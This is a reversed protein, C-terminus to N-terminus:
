NSLSIKLKNLEHKRQTSLEDRRKLQDNILKLKVNQIWVNISEIEHQFKHKKKIVKDIKNDLQDRELKLNTVKSKLDDIDQHFEREGISFFRLENEYKRKMEYHSDDIEIQQLSVIELEKSLNTVNLDIQIISSRLNELKKYNRSEDNQNLRSNLNEIESKLQTSKKRWDTKLKKLKIKEREISDQTTMISNQMTTIPSQIVGESVLRDQFVTSVTNTSLHILEGNITIKIFEIDYQFLPSLGNVFVLEKNKIRCSSVHSWIIGNVKILLQELSISHLEFGLTTEGIYWIFCQSSAILMKKDNLYYGPTILANHSFYDGSYYDLELFMTRIAILITWIPQQYRQFYYRNLKNNNSFSSTGTSASSLPPISAAQSSTATTSQPTTITSGNRSKPPKLNIKNPRNTVNSINSNLNYDISERSSWISSCFNQFNQSVIFLPDTLNSVFSQDQLQLQSQQQQNNLSSRPLKSNSISDKVKIIPQSKTQCYQQNSLDDDNNQQNSGFFSDTLHYIKSFVATKRLIPNMNHMITYLSLTAHIFQLSLELNLLISSDYHINKFSLYYMLRKSVSSSNKFSKFHSNDMSQFSLSLDLGSDSRILHFYDILLQSSYEFLMIACCTSIADLLFRRRTSTLSAAMLAKSFIMIYPIASPLLFLLGSMCLADTTLFLIFSYLSLSGGRSTKPSVLKLEAGGTTTSRIAFSLVRELVFDLTESSSLVAYLILCFAGACQPLSVLLTLTFFTDLWPYRPLLIGQEAM